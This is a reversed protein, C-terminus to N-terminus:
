VSLHNPTPAPQLKGQGKIEEYSARIGEWGSKVESLLGMVENIIATDNKSNAEFLRRAIYDYL